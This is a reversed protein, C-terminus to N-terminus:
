VIVHPGITAGFGDVVTLTDRGSDTIACALGSQTGILVMGTYFHPTRSLGEGSVTLKAGCDILVKRPKWIQWWARRPNAVTQSAPEIALVDVQQMTM